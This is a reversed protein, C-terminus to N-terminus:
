YAAEVGRVPFLNHWIGVASVAIPVFPAPLPELFRAWQVIKVANGCIRCSCHQDNIDFFCGVGCLQQQGVDNYGSPLSACLGDCVGIPLRHCATINYEPSGVVLRAIIRHHLKSFQQFGGGPFHFPHAVCRFEGFFPINGISVPGGFFCQCVDTGVECFDRCHVHRHGFGFLAFRFEFVCRRRRM